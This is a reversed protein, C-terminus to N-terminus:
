ARHAWAEFADASLTNLCEDLQLGGKRAARVGWETLDLQDVSHADPNIAVRVGLERAREIWTWDLDLRYPNANLEVAVDHEACAQLVTEHDIDYGERRLILRGTPHGLIRTHPNRIATVLRETAQERTMNFSTHVSAVIFDFTALIDDPYDLSGDLLIDSEVGSFIRFAPGGDTAFAQNLARIEKQQRSVTAPTMGNAVKLSQSHDCIGLYSWGRSRCALAMERLSHAGDSYTSHNHLSGQMDDLTILHLRALEATREVAGPLDRLAPHIWTLGAAEFVAEETDTDSGIGATEGGLAGVLVESFSDPGTTLALARALDAGPAAVLRVAMGDSLTGDLAAFGHCTTPVPDRLWDGADPLDGELLLDLRGVDNLNRRLEGTVQVRRDGLHAAVRAVLASADALRRRGQYSRLLAVNDVISQQSKAGFGELEAIRGTAAAQELDELTQVGLQQWLARAKKAGLGKVSLIDLLGPPISGLLDDRVEFTGRELIEGIQAALGAGIGAIGTLDSLTAIQEDMREITRAANAFARARFPNGGTLEVLAATEKLPRAIEKNTM